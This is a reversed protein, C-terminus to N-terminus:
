LRGTSRTLPKASQSVRSIADREKSARDMKKLDDLPLSSFKIGKMSADRITWLSCRIGDVPYSVIVGSSMVNRQLDEVASKTTLNGLEDMCAKKIPKGDIMPIAGYGLRFNWAHELALRHLTGKPSIYRLSNSM